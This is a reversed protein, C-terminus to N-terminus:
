LLHPLNRFSASRGHSWQIWGSDEKRKQGQQEKGSKKKGREVIKERKQEGLM